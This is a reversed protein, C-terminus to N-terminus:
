HLTATATSSAITALLAPIRGHRVELELGLAQLSDRIRDPEPHEASFGILTAGSAASSAPHPSQGWDIFFPILGDELVTAPDTFRWHLKVGDARLRSGAALRGLRIGSKLADASLQEIDHTEAAWTVLRAGALSEIGFWSAAEQQDPDPGIIELYCRAGLAILANRTGRGPHRGGPTARVGLLKQLDAVTSDLDPTAYVLHDVCDLAPTM